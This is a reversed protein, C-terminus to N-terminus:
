HKEPLVAYWEDGERALSAEVLNRHIAGIRRTREVDESVSSPDEVMTFVLLLYGEEEVLRLNERSEPWSPRNKGNKIKWDNSFILARNGHTLDQWAGFFIKKEDHNTFSWSWNWNACTGGLSEIFQKRSASKGDNFYLSGEFARRTARKKKFKLDLIRSGAEDGEVPVLTILDTRIKREGAIEFFVTVTPLDVSIIQGVGWDSMKPHRVRTGVAFENTM